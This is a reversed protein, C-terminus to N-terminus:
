TPIGHELRGILDLVDQTGEPTKARDLPTEGGLAASPHGLWEFADYHKGDFYALAAEYVGWSGCGVPVCHKAAAATVKVKGAPSLPTVMYGRWDGLVTTAADRQRWKLAVVLCIVADLRDQDAKSPKTLGSADAAWSSFAPMGLDNTQASTCEAVLRWHDITFKPGKPNYSLRAPPGSLLGRLALGPFVEILHLGETARQAELPEERPDLGDLFAWIPATRNFMTSNLNAPQVGPQIAGAVREVPRMGTHNPVMTPQDIAVLTYDAEERCQEIVGKADEFTALTPTASECLSGNDLVAYCLGGPAKGGWASDFGIYACRM